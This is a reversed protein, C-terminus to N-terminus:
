AKQSEILSRLNEEFKEALTDRSFPGMQELVEHELQHLADGASDPQILATELLVEDIARHFAVRWLYEPDTEGTAVNIHYGVAGQFQMSRITGDTDALMQNIENNAEIAADLAQQSESM